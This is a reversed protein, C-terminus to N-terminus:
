ITREKVEFSTTYGSRGLRHTAREVYYVTSFKEGLGALELTDGAQLEPLGVVEGNGRVLGESIRNLAAEAVRDAEERSGVPVRLVETGSGTGDGEASGVIEEKKQPDWHRVEVTGVQGSNNLEPSFTHLSDGYRLTMEPDSDYPPARFHLVDLRAFLEFGNRDALAKLFRYDSEGDQIVKRHELGTDEVDLEGFGYSSAVESAVDSDTAEDWSRYNSGSMMDHLLGYGSVEVTPGTEPSFEPRVASVRGRFVPELRDRYGMSAEIDTGADLRDWDVDSFTNRDRDYVDVLTVSLHAAGDVITDVELDSVVGDSETFTGDGVRVSFAPWVFDDYKGRLEEFEM